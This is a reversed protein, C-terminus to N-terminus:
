VVMTFRLFNIDKGFLTIMQGRLDYQVCVCLSSTLYVIITPNVSSRYSSVQVMYLVDHLCCVWSTSHITTITSRIRSTGAFCSCLLNLITCSIVTSARTLSM